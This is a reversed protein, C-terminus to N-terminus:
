QIIIYLIYIYIIYIYLFIHLWSIIFLIGIVYYYLIYIYLSVQILSQWAWHWSFSRFTGSDGSSMARLPPSVTYAVGQDWFRPRWKPLREKKGCYQPGTKPAPKQGWKQSWLLAFVLQEVARVAWIEDMQQRWGEKQLLALQWPCVRM